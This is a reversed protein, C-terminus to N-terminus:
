CFLEALIWAFNGLLQGILKIESTNAGFDLNGARPKQIQGVVICVQCFQEFINSSVRSKTQAAGVNSLCDDDVVRRRIHGFFHM